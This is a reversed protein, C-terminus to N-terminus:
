LQSQFRFQFFQTTGELDFRDLTGYGYTAELRINDSLHWNVNPGVRWFKGGHLNGGDLDIYSAKVAVEWAGPGGEFITKSPSIAKFYGGVTNYPRTEGTILYSIAVDGGTFLPDGGEDSTIKHWNYESGFLWPGARYYIEYGVTRVKSAEIKGTEVVFPALNSEPKSRTNIMGEDPRTDRAAIGIHLVKKDEDSMIPLVALRATLQHDYTSFRQKESLVDNFYGLNWLLHQRPAYGLWRIGDSLIPIFADQSTSREMMWNDYGSMVKLLSYGEKQRGIFFSGSLEPVAILFGTQRILWTEDAGDYMVGATWTFRRETKFRGSFLLRFDRLETGAGIEDLQEKSVDDQSYTAADFGLGFGVRVSTIPGDYENWKVLRRRPPESESEGADMTSDISAAVPTPAPASQGRSPGAIMVLFLGAVGLISLVRSSSVRGPEHHRVCSGNSIGSFRMRM